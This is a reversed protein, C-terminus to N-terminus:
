NANISVSFTLCCSEGRNGAPIFRKGISKVNPIDTVSRGNLGFANCIENWASTCDVKNSVEGSGLFDGSLENLAMTAFM